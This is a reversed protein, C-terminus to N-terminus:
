FYFGVYVHVATQSSACVHQSVANRHVIWHVNFFHGLTNWCICALRKIKWNGCTKQKNRLNTIKHIQMTSEHRVQTTEFLYWWCSFIWECRTNRVTNVSIPPNMRINSNPHECELRLKRVEYWSIRLIGFLCRKWSEGLYIQELIGNNSEIMWELVENRKHFNTTM